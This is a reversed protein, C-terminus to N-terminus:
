CKMTSMQIDVLGPIGEYVYYINDGTVNFRVVKIRQPFYSIEVTILQVSAQKMYFNFIIVCVCDKDSGLTVLESQNQLSDSFWLQPTTKNIVM